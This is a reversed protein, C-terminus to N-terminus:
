AVCEPSNSAALLADYATQFELTGPRERIRTKKHDRRFYYRVNGHRDRDRYLYPYEVALKMAVSRAM